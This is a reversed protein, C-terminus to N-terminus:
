APAQGQNLNVCFSEAIPLSIVFKCGKGLESKLDFLFQSKECETVVFYTGWGHGTSKSTLAQKNKIRIIQDPNLGPGNDQISIVLLDDIREASCIVTPNETHSEQMAEAANKILNYVVYFLSGQREVFQIDQFAIPFDIQVAVTFSKEIQPKIMTELDRYIEGISVERKVEQFKKGGLQDLLLHKLQKIKEFSRKLSQAAKSESQSLREVSVGMIMLANNIEHVFVQLQSGIVANHKIQEVSSSLSNFAQSTEFHAKHSNKLFQETAIFYALMGLYSSTLFVRTIMPTEDPLPVIFMAILFTIIAAGLSFIRLQNKHVEVLGAFSILMWLALLEPRTLQLLWIIVVDISFTVVWRITDFYDTRSYLYGFPTWIRWNRIVLIQNIAFVPIITMVACWFRYDPRYHSVVMFITM